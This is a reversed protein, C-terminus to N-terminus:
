KSQHTASERSWRGSYTTLDRATSPVPISVTLADLLFRSDGENTLMASVCLAGSEDLVMHTDLRLRAVEDHSRTTVSRSTTEVECTTFRPSWDRGGPRHGQVGPRAQSGLSHQPVIHLAPVVDLSGHTTPRSTMAALRQAEPAELRAGWHVIAPVGSSVDIVVSVRDHVLHVM